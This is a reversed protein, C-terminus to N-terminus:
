KTSNEQAQAERWAQLLDKHLVLSRRYFGELHATTTHGPFVAKMMLVSDFIAQLDGVIGLEERTFQHAPDM